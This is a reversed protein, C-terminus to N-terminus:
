MHVDARVHACLHACTHALGYAIVHKINNWCIWHACAISTYLGHDDRTKATLAEYAGYQLGLPANANRIRQLLEVDGERHSLKRFM